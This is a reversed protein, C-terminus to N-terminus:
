SEYNRRVFRDNRHVDDEQQFANDDDHLSEFSDIEILYYVYMDFEKM